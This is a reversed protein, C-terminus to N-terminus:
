PRAKYAVIKDRKMQSEIKRISGKGAQARLGSLANAPLAGQQVPEEVELGNGLPDIMVDKAHGDVILQVEYETKGLLCALLRFGDAAQSGGLSKSGPYLM